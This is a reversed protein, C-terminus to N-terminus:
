DLSEDPKGIADITRGDLDKDPKTRDMCSACGDVVARVMSAEHERIPVEIDEVLCRRIVGERVFRGAVVRQDLMANVLDSSAGASIDAAAPVAAVPDVDTEDVARM